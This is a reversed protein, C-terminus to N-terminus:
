RRKNKKKKTKNQYIVRTRVRNHKQVEKMRYYLFLMVCYMNLLILITWM